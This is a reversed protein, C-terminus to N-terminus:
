FLVLQHPWSSLVCLGDPLPHSQLWFRNAARETALSGASPIMYTLSPVLGTEQRFPLRMATTGFSRSSGLREWVPIPLTRALCCPQFLRAPEPWWRWCVAPECLCACPLYSLLCDRSLTENNKNKNGGKLKTKPELLQEEVCNQKKYYQSPPQM